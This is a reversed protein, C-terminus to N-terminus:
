LGSFGLLASAISNWFDPLDRGTERVGEASLARGGELCLEEPLLQQKAHLRPWPKSSESQFPNQSPKGPQKSAIQPPEM